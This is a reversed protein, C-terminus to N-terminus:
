GATRRIDTVVLSVLPEAERGCSEPRELGTRLESTVSWSRGDDHRVTVSWPGTGTVPETRLHGSKDGGIEALVQGEAAQAAPSLASHGRFAHLPLRGSSRM